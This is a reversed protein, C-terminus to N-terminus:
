IMLVAAASSISDRGRELTGLWIRLGSFDNRTSPKGDDNRANRFGEEWEQLRSDGINRGCRLGAGGLAYAARKDFDKWANEVKRSNCGLGNKWRRLSYLKNNEGGVHQGCPMRM